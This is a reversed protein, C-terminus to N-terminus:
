IHPVAAAKALNALAQVMVVEVVMTDEQRWDVPTIAEQVEWVYMCPEAQPTGHEPPIAVLAEMVAKAIAVPANDAEKREGCKWNSPPRALPYLINRYEALLPSIRSVSHPLIPRCDATFTHGVPPLTASTANARVLFDQLLRAPVPLIPTGTALIARLFQPEMRLHPRLHRMRM